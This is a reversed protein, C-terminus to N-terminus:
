AAKPSRRLRDFLMQTQLVVYIRWTVIVIDAIMGLREAFGRLLGRKREKIVQRPGHVVTFGMRHGNTKAFFNLAIEVQFNKKYARPVQEWLERRLAREGGIIPTVRLLRNAWYTRRGRIGVFMAYDGCAVPAVITTVAEPSLGIVDADCFFIVDNRAAAVGRTMAEAKGSPAPLSIVTAGCRQALAATSDTSHDDVVIVEDVLPHALLPRLVGELTAHEDRAPVIASVRPPVHLQAPTM